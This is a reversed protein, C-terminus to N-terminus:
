FILLLGYVNEILSVYMVWGNDDIKVVVGDFVKEVKVIM